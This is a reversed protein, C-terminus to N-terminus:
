ASKCLLMEELVIVILDGFKLSMEFEQIQLFVSVIFIEWLLINSWHHIVIYCLLGAFGCVEEVQFCGLFILFEFEQAVAFVCEM